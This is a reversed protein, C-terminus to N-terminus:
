IGYDEKHEITISFGAANDARVIRYLIAATNCLFLISDAGDGHIGSLVCLESDRFAGGHKTDYPHQFVVGNDVLEPYLQSVFPVAIYGGGNSVLSFLVKEDKRISSSLVALFGTKDPYHFNVHSASDLTGAFNPNQDLVVREIQTRQMETLQNAQRICVNRQARGKWALAYLRSRSRESTGADCCSFGSDLVGSFGEVGDGTEHMTVGALRGIHWVSSDTLLFAFDDGLKYPSGELIRLGVGAPVTHPPCYKPLDKECLMGAGLLDGMVKSTDQGFKMVLVNSQCYVFHLDSNEGDKLIPTAPQNTRLGAMGDNRAEMATSYLPHCALIIALMASLPWSGFLDLTKTGMM